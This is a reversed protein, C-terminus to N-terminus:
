KHADSYYLHYSDINLRTNSLSIDSPKIGNKWLVFALSLQDRPVVTSILIWWEEMIKKIAENNHKRYIINNENMGYNHPFHNEKLIKYIDDLQNEPAKNFKKVTKIEKYICSRLFHKPILIDFESKKNDIEVFLRDNLVDINGDIYISENYEPFLNQPHTKHWRNNLSNNLDTFVLPRIEWMSFQKKNILKEDDTFCVYDWESNYYKHSILKDYNGTICTYIVKKNQNNKVLNIETNNLDEYSFINERAKLKNKSTFYNRKIKKLFTIIKTMIFM